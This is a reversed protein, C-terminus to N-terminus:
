VELEVLSKEELYFKNNVLFSSMIARKRIIIGNEDRDILLIHIDEDLECTNNIIKSILQRGTM